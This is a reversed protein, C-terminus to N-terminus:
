PKKAGSANLTELAKKAAERVEPAPDKLMKVLRPLYEVADLTALSRAAQARITADSDDLMPLLQQVAEDRARQGNKRLNWRATEDQYKRISELGAFCAKRIDENATSGAEDLLYKAARDNMYGTIASAVRVPELSGKLLLQGLPDLLEPWRLGQMKGIAGDALHIDSTAGILYKVYKPRQEDPEAPIADLAIRLVYSRAEEFGRPTGGSDFWRDLIPSAARSPLEGERLGSLVSLAVPDSFAHSAALESSLTSKNELPLNSGIGQLLGREDNTPEGTSWCPDSLFERLATLVADGGAYAATRAAFVRLRREANADAVIPLMAGVHEQAVTNPHLLKNSLSVFTKPSLDYVRRYVRELTRDDIVGPQWVEPNVAGGAGIDVAQPLWAAAQELLKDDKEDLAWSLIARVGAPTRLARGYVGYDERMSSTRNERRKKLLELLDDDKLDKRDCQWAFSQDFRELVTPETDGALVLYAPLWSNVPVSSSRWAAIVLRVRVDADGALAAYISADLSLVLAISSEAAELRVSADTDSCSRILTVRQTAGIAPHVEHDGTVSNTWDLYKPLSGTRARMSRAVQMRVEADQSDVQALLADSSPYDLLREAAFRRVIPDHSDLASELVPKISERGAAAALVQVVQKRLDIDDSKLARELATQLENTLADRRAASQVLEMAERGILPDELLHGLISLWVPELLKPPTSQNPPKEWAAPSELVNLHNMARLIRKRWLFGGKDFDHVILEAGRMRALELLLYLPDEQVDNSLVDTPDLALKELAPVARPGIDLVVRSEKKRVATTVATAIADAGTGNEAGAASSTLKDRLIVLSKSKRAEIEAEIVKGDAPILEYGAAAQKASEDLLLANTARLADESKGLKALLAARAAAIEVLMNMRGDYDLAWAARVHLDDLKKLAEDFDRSVDISLQINALEQRYREAHGGAHQAEWAKRDQPDIRTGTPNGNETKVGSWVYRAEQAAATGFLIAAFTCTTIFRKM